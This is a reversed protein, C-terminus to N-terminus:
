PHASGTVHCSVLHDSGSVGRPHSPLPVSTFCEERALPCSRRYACAPTTDTLDPPLAGSAKLRQGRQPVAALLAQTYPHQPASFVEDVPGSEITRGAYLVVVRHCYNSVVTLDHTILLMSTESDRVLAAILDLIQRQLTVDLATTPEDAVVLAPDLQLAMAIVVRQAMGGSLQHAYGDLVRTPDSIGVKRLMDAAHERAETKTVRRHARQMNYFQTAIPLIPNLVAFPNQAIFGITDGRLKRLEGPKLSLLDVGALHATGSTVRGPARLLGLISRVTASKGAGSEGVIGVVEGREVQFTIDSAAHVVSSGSPYITNLNSVDLLTM